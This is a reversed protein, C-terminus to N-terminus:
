IGRFLHSLGDEIKQDGCGAANQKRAISDKAPNPASPPQLRRAGFDGAMRNLTSAKQKIVIHGL